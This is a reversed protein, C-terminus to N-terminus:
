WGLRTLTRRMQNLLRDHFPTATAQREDRATWKARNWEFDRRITAAPDHVAFELTLARRPMTSTNPGAGHLTRSHHLVCDGASLPVAVMGTTDPSVAELAHARRNGGVSEHPLLPGLHSGPKYLMCGLSENVDQLPIWCSVATRYPTGITFSAEDQHWPTPAGILPPKLIAFEWVLEAKPGLLRATLAQANRRTETEALWPAYRSPWALQPLRPQDPKDAPDLMDFFDGRDWGARREFLSDYLKRLAALEMPPVLGRVAVFGDRQFDAVASADLEPPSTLERHETYM